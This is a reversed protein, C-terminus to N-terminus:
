DRGRWRVKWGFLERFLAIWQLIVFWLIAVPHCVAGFRSQEFRVSALSRPVWSLISLGLLFVLAVPSWSQFWGFVLLALPLLTGGLLLITFPIILRANAIGETANKLLGRQVQGFTEYMRCTALDTADFLDTRLGAKRFSRPLKIGDHRSGQIAAHGSCAFYDSRKALFLQGCGAAFGPDTTKRMRDIPLYCLLVYHMMPILLKESWTGTEQKPFGSLLSVDRVAQQALIRTLADPSLRVDADLFLMFEYKASQALQWCAHQKGNWGNPLPPSQLLRVRESKKTWESVIEPTADDSHDDLVLVEFTPHDSALISSLAARLSKEENRAPICVSVATNRARELLEPDRSATSFLSLNKCFLVVPLLTLVVALIIFGISLM